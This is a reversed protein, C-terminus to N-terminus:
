ILPEIFESTADASNQYTMYKIRGEPTMYRNLMAPDISTVDTVIFADLANQFAPDINFGVIRAGLKLYHKLLVPIRLDEGEVDEIISQLENIDKISFAAYYDYHSKYKFPTLPKILGALNPEFYRESLFKVMLNQSVHHFSSSISVPGILYRYRMNQLLFHGLGIWLLLLPAYSRQYESRIFSRGLELAPAIEAYFEPEIHFLTNLYLGKQGKTKLIKDCPGLRYAGVIENKDQNWVCLHYYDEDFGDLDMQKGTGEGVERFTIERLRGIEYLLNPSEPTEFLVVQFSGQCYLPTLRAIEEALVAGPIPAAIRSPRNVSKKVIRIPGALSQKLRSPPRAAGLIYTKSRIFETLAAPDKFDAIKEPPIIHGIKYNLRVTNPFVFERILLSTRLRADILGALHFFLSNGGYFYIPVVTARTKLALKSIHESWAPEHIQGTKVDFAAVEGAPFAGLFGGAKLYGLAERLAGLNKTQSEPRGFPDVLILKDRIEPIRGILFNAMIKYDPRIRKMLLVFFLAELGGFPHNGVLIMPGRVTQLRKLEDDDIKFRTHLSEFVSEVAAELSQTQAFTEQFRGYVANFKEVGLAREVGTQLFIGYLIRSIPNKLLDATNLLRARKSRFM